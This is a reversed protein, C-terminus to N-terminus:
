INQGNLFKRGSDTSHAVSGERSGMSESTNNGIRLSLCVCIRSSLESGSNLSSSNASHALLTPVSQQLDKLLSTAKSQCRPHICASSTRSVLVEGLDSLDGSSYGRMSAVASPM